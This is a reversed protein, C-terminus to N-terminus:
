HTARRKRRYSPNAIGSVLTEISAVAERVAQLERRSIVYEPPLVRAAATADILSSLDTGLAQALSTM